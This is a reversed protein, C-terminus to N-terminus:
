ENNDDRMEANSINADDRQNDLDDEDMPVRGTGNCKACISEEAPEQCETCHGNDIESGCCPSYPFSGLGGCEGCPKTPYEEPVKLGHGFAFSKIINKSVPNM